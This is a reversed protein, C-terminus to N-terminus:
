AATSWGGRAYEECRENLETIVSASAGAVTLAEVVQEPLHIASGIELKHLSAPHVCYEKAFGLRAHGLSARFQVFPHGLELNPPGIEVSSLNDLEGRAVRKERQFDRYGRRISQEDWGLVLLTAMISPLVDPYVGCENLYLAQKHVGCRKSFSELTKEQSAMRALRIPNMFLDDWLGTCIDIHKSAALGRKEKVYFWTSAYVTSM